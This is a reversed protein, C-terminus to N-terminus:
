RRRRLPREGDRRRVLHVHPRREGVPSPAHVRERGARPDADGSGVTPVVPTGFDSIPSPIVRGRPDRPHSEVPARSTSRREARPHNPPQKKTTPASRSPPPSASPSIRPPPPPAPARRRRRRPRPSPTSPVSPNARAASPNVRPPDFPRRRAHRARPKPTTAPRRESPPRLREPPAESLPSGSRLSLVLLAHRSEIPNCGRRRACSTSTTARPRARSGRSRTPSPAMVRGGSSVYGESTEVRLASTVTQLKDDANQLHPVGDQAAAARASLDSKAEKKGDKKAQNKAQALAKANGRVM